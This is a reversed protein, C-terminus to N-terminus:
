LSSGKGIKQRLNILHYYKATHARYLPVADSLYKKLIILVRRLECPKMM